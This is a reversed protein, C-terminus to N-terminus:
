HNAQSTSEFKAWSGALLKNENERFLPHGGIKTLIPYTWIGQSRCAAPSHVSTDQLHHRATNPRRRCNGVQKAPRRERSCQPSPIRWTAPRDAPGTRDTRGPGKKKRVRRSAWKGSPPDRRAAAKQWRRIEAVHTNQLDDHSPQASQIGGRGRKRKRERERQRM